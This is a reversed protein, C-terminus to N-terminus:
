IDVFRTERVREEVEEALHSSEKKGTQGGTVRKHCSTYKAQVQTLEWGAEDKFGAQPSGSVTPFVNTDRVVYKLARQVDSDSM